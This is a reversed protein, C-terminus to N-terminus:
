AEDEDVEVELVHVAWAVGAAAALLAFTIATPVFALWLPPTLSVM